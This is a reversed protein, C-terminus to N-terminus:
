EEERGAGRGARYTKAFEVAKAGKPHCQKHVLVGNDLVTRGGKAHEEVHHIEGDAWIVTGDCVACTKKDRYYVIERELEGFGRTPDKLQPSLWEFMKRAFFEHRLLISSARDSNARTWAGYRTWFEGPSPEYRTLKHKAFAERFKDFARPLNDEWGRTYDDLLSDVLLVLHLAEHGQLTKRKKDGLLQTLRDLIGRFRETEPSKLDYDLHRYYFDDIARSNIDCFRDAGGTRRVSYLMALQAALQRYKGRGSATKAGLLVKFFDHGPYRPIEPKGGLKLVFETFNGPWADRKEQANLPM